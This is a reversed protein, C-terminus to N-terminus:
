PEIIPNLDLGVIVGRVADEFEERDSNGRKGWGAAHVTGFRDRWIVVCDRDFPVHEYADGTKWRITLGRKAKM